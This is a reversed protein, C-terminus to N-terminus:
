ELPAAFVAWHLTGYHWAQAGCRVVASVASLRDDAAATKRIARRGNLPQSSFLGM